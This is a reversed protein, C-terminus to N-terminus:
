APPERPLRVVFNSGVGPRSTAEIAGAHAQALERAITLGLGVGDARPQRPGKVRYSRDFVRELHEPAIGDGTDRVEIRVGSPSARGILDIRDGPQTHRLANEVLNQLIQRVRDPDIRFSLGRPAIASLSVGLRDARFRNATAIGNLLADLETPVPRVELRGAEAAALERLDDALRRLLLTEEHMSAIREETLELLGDEAAELIARLNQIPGRLEHGIDSMLERRRRDRAHSAAAGAGIPAMVHREAMLTTVVVILAVALSLGTARWASDGCLLVAAAGAATGVTAVTLLAALV